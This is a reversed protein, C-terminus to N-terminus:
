CNHSSSLEYVPNGHLQATRATNQVEHVPESGLEKAAIRTETEYVAEGQAEPPLLRSDPLEIGRPPAAPAICSYVGEGPQMSVIYEIDACSVTVTVFMVSLTRAINLTEFSLDNVVLEELPLHHRLDMREIIQVMENKASTHQMFKNTQSCITQVKDTAYVRQRLGLRVNDRYKIQVSRLYVPPIETTTSNDFDYEIGLHLPLAEGTVSFRPMEIILFFASIPAKLMFSKARSRFSAQDTNAALRRSACRILHRKKIFSPQAAPLRNYPLFSLAQHSQRIYTGQATVLRAELEYIISVCGNISDQDALPPRWGDDRHFYARHSFSPPLPLNPESIVTSLDASTAWKQIRQNSSTLSPFTFSFPWESKGLVPLHSEDYDCVIQLEDFFVIRGNGYWPVRKDHQSLRMTCDIESRGSFAVEIRKANQAADYFLNLHVLGSVPEGPRYSKDERLKSLEFRLSTM